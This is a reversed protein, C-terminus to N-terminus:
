FQIHSAALGVDSHGLKVEFPM